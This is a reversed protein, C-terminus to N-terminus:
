HPKVLEWCTFLSTNGLAAIDNTHVEECQYASAEQQLYYDVISVGNRHISRTVGVIEYGSHVLDYLSLKTMKWQNTPLPSAM